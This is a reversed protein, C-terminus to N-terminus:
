QNILKNLIGEFRKQWFGVHKLIKEALDPRKLSSESYIPYIKNFNEKKYIYVAGIPYFEVAVYNKFYIIYSYFDYLFSKKDVKYIYEMFISWFDTRENKDIFFEVFYKGYKNEIYKVISLKLNEPINIKLLDIIEKKLLFDLIKNFYDNYSYYFILIEVLINPFEKIYVLKNKLYNNFFESIYKEDFCYNLKYNNYFDLFKNIDAKDLINYKNIIANKDFNILANKFDEKSYNYDLYKKLIELANTKTFFSNQYALLFGLILENFIKTNNLKLKEVFSYLYYKDNKNDILYSYIINNLLFKNNKIKEILAYPDDRLLKMIENNIEINNESNGFKLKIELSISKTKNFKFSFFKQDIDLM